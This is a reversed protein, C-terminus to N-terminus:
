KPTWRDRCYGRIEWLAAAIIDSDEKQTLIHAALVYSGYQNRVMVTYLLWKLLNAKHTADMLSLM